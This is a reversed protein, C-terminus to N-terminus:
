CESPPPLRSRLRLRDLERPHTDLDLHPPLAPAYNACAKRCERSFSRPGPGAAERVPLPTANM